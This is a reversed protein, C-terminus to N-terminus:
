LIPYCQTGLPAGIAGDPHSVTKVLIYYFYAENVISKADDLEINQSNYYFGDDSAEVPNIWEGNDYPFFPLAVYVDSSNIPGHIVLSTINGLGGFAFKYSVVKNQTDIELYGRGLGSADGGGGSDFIQADNMQLCYRYKQFDDKLNVTLGLAVTGLVGLTLSVFIMLILILWWTTAEESYFSDNDDGYYDNNNNRSPM